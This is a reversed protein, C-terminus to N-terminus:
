KKKFIFKIKKFFIFFFLTQFGRGSFAGGRFAASRRRINKATKRMRAFVALFVGGRARLASSKASWAFRPLPPLFSDEPLLFYSSSSSSQRPFSSSTHRPTTRTLDRNFM